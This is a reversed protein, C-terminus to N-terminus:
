MKGVLEVGDIDTIEVTKITNELQKVLKEENEIKVKSVDLIPKLIDTTPSHFLFGAKCTKDERAESFSM